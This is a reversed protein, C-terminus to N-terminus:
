FLMSLKQHKLYFYYFYEIQKFICYSMECRNYIKIPHSPSKKSFLQLVWVIDNTLFRKFSNQTKAIRTFLVRNRCSSMEKQSFVDASFSDLLSPKRQLSISDLPSTKQACFGLGKSETEIYLFRTWQVRNRHMSVSDKPSSKKPSFVLGKSENELCLFRTWQVRNRQIVWQWNLVNHRMVGMGCLQNSGVAAVDRPCLCDRWLLM